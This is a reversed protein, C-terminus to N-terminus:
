RSSRLRLRVGDGLDLEDGPRMAVPEHARLRIVPGRYRYLHTGNTTALDTVMVYWGELTFAIHSRSVDQQPSPVTVLRPVEGEAVRSARPRRGVVASRDLPFSGGTSIEVVGLPPRRVPGPAGGLPQACVQCATLEPPNPHGQACLLGTVLVEPAGTADQPSAGAMGRGELPGLTHDASLHTSARERAAPPAAQGAPSSAAPQAPQAAPAPPSTPVPRRSPAAPRDAFSDRRSPPEVRPASARRVGPVWDILPPAPPTVPSAPAPVAVSEASPAADPTDSAGGDATEEATTEREPTDEESSRRVAADEIRRAITQGFLDDYAGAASPSASPQPVPSAPAAATETEPVPVRHPGAGAGSRSLITDEEPLAPDARGALGDAPPSDPSPSPPSSTGSSSTPSTEAAPAQPHVPDATDERFSAPDVTADEPLTGQTDGASGPTEPGHDTQATRALIDFLSARRRAPQTPGPESQSAEPKPSRPSEVPRSESAAVPEAPRSESAAVPEAPRSEPAAVPDDVSSTPTAPRSSFLGAFVSPAAPEPATASPATSPGGPPASPATTATATAATPRPATPAPAGAAPESPAPTPPPPADPDTIAGGDEAVRRALESRQDATLSSPEVVMRAFGRVRCMGEVTRLTGPGGEAPLSGFAIRWVAPITEVRGAGDDGARVIVRGEPSDVALVSSGAVLLVASGDHEVGCLIPPLSGADEAGTADVVATLLGDPDSPLDVLADWMTDILSKPAAPVLLAWAVGRSILTAPGPHVWTGVGFLAPADAPEASDTREENM